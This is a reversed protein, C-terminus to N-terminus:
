DRAKRAPATKGLLQQLGVTLGDGSRGGGGGGRGGMGGGGRGGGGGGGGGTKVAVKVNNFRPIISSVGSDEAEAAALVLRKMEAREREEAARKEAAAAVFGADAPVALKKPAGRKTLMRFAVTGGSSSPGAPGAAAHGAANLPNATAPKDAAAASSAASAKVGAGLFRSMERDFDLEDERSVRPRERRVRDEQEPEVASSEGGATGGNEEEEEEEDEEEEDEEDDDDDDDDALEDEGESESESSEDDEGDSEDDDDEEEEEAIGELGVGEHRAGAAGGGATGGGGGGAAKAKRAEEEEWRACEASASQYDAHPELKPRFALLTERVDHAVELSLNKALAYRQFFAFFRDLTKKPPGSAGFAKGCTELLQCVLRVRITDGAPDLPDSASDQFAASHGFSILLYLQSFITTTNVVKAKYMEGLLRAAALRRQHMWPANTELGFRIEELLSDITRVGFSPKGKSLAAVLQAIWPSAGYRNKHSKLLTRVVYREHTAWPLKRLQRNVQPLTKEDLVRFVLHRVYEHTPPRVRARRRRAARESKPRCSAHAADIRAIQRSDLKTNTSGKLRVFVDLIAAMRAATEPLRALFSGCTEILTCAVDVNQGGFRELLWRIAEFAEPATVMRFKVLEGLFRANKLRHEFTAVDGRGERSLVWFEERIAHSVPGRIDSVFVQGLAAAIRAYHPIKHVDGRPVSVLEHVARRRTSPTANVYCLDVAFADADDKMVCGPLRAMLADVKQAHDKGVAADAEADSREKELKRSKEADNKDADGDEADEDGAGDQVGEEKPLLVAPVTARLDPLDEYFIKQEEDDWLARWDGPGVDVGRQLEVEGRDKERDPEVYEPLEPYRERLDEALSAVNKHIFDRTRKAHAYAESDAASLEGTRELRKANSREIESLSRHAHVLSDCARAYFGALCSRFAAQQEPKLRYACSSAGEVSDGAPREPSKEADDPETETESPDVGLYEEGYVRAFQALTTLSHAYADADDVRSEVKALESVCKHLSGASPVVGVLHLEALLRLKLRRQLPTVVEAADLGAATAAEKAALAAAASPAFAKANPCVFRPLSEALAPAFDEYLSHLKSVVDVAASIDSSKLKGEVTAAVAETVYKRMNVKGLEDLLSSRAEETIKTLKRTLATCKKISSDLRKLDADTPRSPSINAARLEVRARRLRRLEEARQKAEAEERAIREAEARAREEEELRKRRREAEAARERALAEEALKAAARAAVSGDDGKKSSGKGGRGGQQSGKKKDGRGGGGGGGGSQGGGRGGGKPPM